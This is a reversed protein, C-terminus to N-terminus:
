GKTTMSKNGRPYNGTDVRIIEKDTVIIKVPVDFYGTPLDIKSLAPSFCLGATVGKFKQLFRDYYGGGYGLRTGRRDFSLGPLICLGDNGKFMKKEDPAPELIGYSGVQLEDISNIYYFHIIHEGDVCRPVAVKKGSALASKILCFTDVENRLSVYSLLTDAKKYEDLSLINQLINNNMNQREEASFESRLNKMQARLKKKLFYANM